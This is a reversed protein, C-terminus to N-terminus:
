INNMLCTEDVVPHDLKKRVGNSGLGIFGEQYM